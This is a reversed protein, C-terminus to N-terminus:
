NFSKRLEKIKESYEADQETYKKLLQEDYDFEDKVFGSEDDIIRYVIRKEGLQYPVIWFSGLQNKNRKIDLIKAHHINNKDILENRGNVVKSLLVSFDMKFDDEHDISTLLRGSDDFDVEKGISIGQFRLYISGVRAKNISCSYHQIKNNPHYWFTCAYEVLAENSFESYEPNGTYIKEALPIVQMKIEEIYKLVEDDSYSFRIIDFKDQTKNYTEDYNVYEYEYSKVNIYSMKILHHKVAEKYSNEEDGYMLAIKNLPISNKMDKKLEKSPNFIERDQTLDPVNIGKVNSLKENMVYRKFKSAESTKCATLVVLMIVILAIKKEM